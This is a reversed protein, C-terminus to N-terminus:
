PNHEFRWPTVLRLETWGQFRARWATFSGIGPGPGEVSRSKTPWVRPVQM